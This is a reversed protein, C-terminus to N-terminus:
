TSIKLKQKGANKTDQFIVQIGLCKLFTFFQCKKEKNGLKDANEIRTKRPVFGTLNRPSPSFFERM